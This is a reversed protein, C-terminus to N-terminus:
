VLIFNALSLTTKRTGTRELELDRGAQVVRLFGPLLKLQERKGLSRLSGCGLTRTGIVASFERPLKVGIACPM